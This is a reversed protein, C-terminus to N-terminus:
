EGDERNDSGCNPCFNSKFVDRTMCELKAKLMKIAEERNM